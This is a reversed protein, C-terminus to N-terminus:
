EVIGTRPYARIREAGRILRPHFVSPRVVFREFEVKTRGFNIWLGVKVGTAKILRSPRASSRKPIDKHELEM